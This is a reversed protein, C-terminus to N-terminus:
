EYFSLDDNAFGDFDQYTIPRGEPNSDERASMHPHLSDMSAPIFLDRVNTHATDYHTVTAGLREVTNGIIDPILNPDVISVAHSIINAAVNNPDGNNFADSATSSVKSVFSSLLGGNNKDNKYISNMEVTANKLQEYMINFNQNKQSKGLGKRILANREDKNKQRERSINTILDQKQKQLKGFSATYMDMKVTTQISNSSVDVSINTVLPGANQLFKALAIGSPAEPIVLGGRESSLLLSNSLEAQLSGMQNMLDYGGYNWPALNEDKIFDVKGGINNTNGKFTSSVWPGYCRDKSRLPLAVLDPYVPSPMIAQIQNEPTGYSITELAKKYAKIANSIANPDLSNKYDKLINTDPGNLFSPFIFEPIKVVDMSMYHKILQPNKEQFIGDRFRADVTPLVRGPLTILAYVNNTDLASLSTNVNGYINRVLDLRNVIPGNSYPTPVFHSKYYTFSPEFNCTDENFIKRPVAYTGIDKVQSGHVKINTSRFSPSFYLKEEVDCKVFGITRPRRPRASLDESNPFREFKNLEVKTNDLIDCVDPIFYGAAIVQQTFTDSGLLDFSLNQSDDFRAYCSVRSNENMFNTLDIPVLGQLIAKNQSFLNVGFDFNIYGGQRDPEYNFEYKDLVPNFNTNLAGQFIAPNPELRTLFGKMLGIDKKLIRNQQELLKTKFDLSNEYAINNNISRPKFGFPGKIYEGTSTKNDLLMKTEITDQYFLNVERPIKVLFKKGLNEDAIKRIYNYVKLSNELTKKSLRNQVNVIPAIGDAFKDVLGVVDEQANPNGYLNKIFNIYQYELPTVDGDQISNLNNFETHLTEQFLAGDQSSGKLRALSTLIRNTTAQIDTLGAGQVGLRTARKYYLPYGYPPNCTSIPLGDSGYRNDSSTFVSRPVTVAFNNSINPNKKVGDINVAPSGLLAAGEVADNDEISEMYLDNYRILFESWKEYSIIAARLELETAVYYNGVGYVEWSSSDLLIQQYAGFGKPITVSNDSLLGYYPLIQQSLSQEFTWQNAIFANAKNTLGFQQKRVEITDRDNNSSFFHMDVQQAGVIFKDTTVNTLEYGLDQNTVAIDKNKLDSIYRSIAGYEPQFSKDISDIRIIGAITNEPKKKLMQEKNWLYFRQCVPHEIIPLLSVFIDSNTIDGIELCFDLLNIQDFDFFYYDPVTKLGSLDVLYNYGRFNIYGGFGAEVYEQPLKGNFGLLANMAQRIRYYPIGNPGRRSFGTGTMPFQDPLNLAYNFRKNYIGYFNLLQNDNYLSYIDYGSFFFSGNQAVSKKFVNKVPYFANLSNKLATTPNYELFGYVNFVNKNNYTTGTYNNLILVVNSLIERPDVVQTSYLPNGGPGRNQTFTQLIGGFNTHFQGSAQVLKAYEFGYITDYEKKYSDNVSAKHKGFNFYVPSGTFPPNFSDKQGDHYHDVGTGLPKKDSVNFEDEVLDVSLTSTSDGFGANISFNRISAGLFTQQEYGNRANSLSEPIAFATREKELQHIGSPTFPIGAKEASQQLKEYRENDWFLEPYNGSGPNVSSDNLQTYRM